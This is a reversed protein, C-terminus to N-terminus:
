NERSMVTFLGGQRDRLTSEWGHHTEEPPTVVEGGSAAAREAAAPM